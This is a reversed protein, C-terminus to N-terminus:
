EDELCEQIANLLEEATMSDPGLKYLGSAINAIVWKSAHDGDESTALDLKALLLRISQPPASLFYWGRGARNAQALGRLTEADDRAPDAPLTLFRVKSEMKKGLAEQADKWTVLTQKCHEKCDTAVVGIVVVRGELLDSHFRLSDGRQDTVIADPFYDRAAKAGPQEKQLSVSEAASAPAALAVVLALCAFRNM